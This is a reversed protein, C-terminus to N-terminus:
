MILGELMSLEPFKKGRNKSKIIKLIDEPSKKQKDIKQIELETFALFTAFIHARQKQPTTCQCHHVGLHQKSTRFLKEIPWRFNYALIYQKPTLDELNSIVFVIQKTGNKGKRKQCTFHATIGKYTGKTTKYRENKTLKFAPQNRLLDSNGNIVVKRNKPIRIIYKLKNQRLFVLFSENGYDGDLAIYEFPIKDKWQTILDKAIDTKKKYKSDDGLDKKRIWFNFDLPILIKGNTWAITIHTLGKLVLKMSSNYDYCINPLKKSHRKIIQSGDTVVIGPNQKTAYSKIVRVSFAQIAKEQEAAVEFYSYISHYPIGLNESMASCNKKGTSILLCLVYTKLNTSFDQYIKKSKKTVCQFLM